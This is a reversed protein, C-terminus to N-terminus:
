RVYLFEQQENFIRMGKEMPFSYDMGVKEWRVEKVGLFEPKYKEV